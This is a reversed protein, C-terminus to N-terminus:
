RTINKNKVTDYCEPIMNAPYDPYNTLDTCLIVGNGDWVLKWITNVKAAFWMGGGGTASAGGQAYLGQIKSVTVNLSNADPGHEVVLAKKVASIITATEDITPTITNEVCKEEFPRLCKQKLECWSYGASGICGHIDKDNGVIQTQTPIPSVSQIVINDPKPPSKTAVYYGAGFIGGLVAILGIIALVNKM